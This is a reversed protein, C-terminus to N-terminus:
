GRLLAAVLPQFVLHVSTCAIENAQFSRRWYLWSWVMGPLFYRLGDHLVAAADVPAHSTVNVWVNLAQSLAFACWFAGAAPRGCVDRWVRGLVWALTSGLFLRYLINENFARMMFATTRSALPAGTLMQAYGPHLRSRFAWDVGACVVAVAMATLVPALLSGRGAVPTVRLGVRGAAVSGVIALAVIALVRLPALGLTAADFLRDFPEVAAIVAALALGLVRVDLSRLPRSILISTQM